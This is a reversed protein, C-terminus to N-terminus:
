SVAARAAVYSVGNDDKELPSVMEYARCDPLVSGFPQEGRAQENACSAGQAGVPGAVLGGGCVVVLVVVSVLGRVACGASLRGTFMSMVRREWSLCMGAGM